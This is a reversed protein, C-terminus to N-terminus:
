RGGLGGFGGMGGGLGGFGGMQGAGQNRAVKWVGNVNTMKLKQSQNFSQGMFAGSVTVPVTATDGDITPDGVKFELSAFLSNLLTAAGPMKDLGAKTKDAFEQATPFQTTDVESTEYVTKWDQAKLATLFKEAQAKPNARHHLFWWGGVGGALAMLLVLALAAAAGGGSKEPSEARRVSYSRSPAAPGVPRPPAQMNPLPAGVYSPPPASASMGPEIVEGTLSVRAGPQMPIPHVAPTPAPPAPVNPAVGPQQPYPPGPVGGTPGAAPQPPTAMTAASPVAAAPLDPV